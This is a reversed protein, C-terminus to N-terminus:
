GPQRALWDRLADLAHPEHYHHRNRGEPMTQILGADHLVALHKMVGWRTIAHTRQALQATTLGPTQSILALLRRRTPDALCRFISDLDADTATIL